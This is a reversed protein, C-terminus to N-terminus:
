IINPHSNTANRTSSFVSEDREHLVTCLLMTAISVPFIFLM